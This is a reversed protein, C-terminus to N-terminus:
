KKVLGLRLEVTQGEKIEISTKTTYYGYKEVEVEVWGAPLNIFYAWGYENTIDFMIRKREPPATYITVVADMVPYVVGNIIEFVYVDLHGRGVEPPPKPPKPPAVARAIQVAIAYAIATGVAGFIVGYALKEEKIKELIQGM